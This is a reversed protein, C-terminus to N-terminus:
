FSRIQFKVQRILYLKQKQELYVSVTFQLLWECVSKSSCYFTPASPVCPDTDESKKANLKSAHVEWHYHSATTGWGQLRELGPQIPGQAAQAPPPLGAWPLPQPQTPKSTGKWWLVTSYGSNSPIWLSQIWLGAGCLGM